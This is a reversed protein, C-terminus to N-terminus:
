NVRKMRELDVEEQAERRMQVRSARLLKALSVAGLFVPILLLILAKFPLFLLAGLLLSGVLWLFLSTRVAFYREQATRSRQVSRNTKWVGLVIIGLLLYTEFKM